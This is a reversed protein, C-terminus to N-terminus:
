CRGPRAAPAPARVLQEDQGIDTARETLLLTLRPLAQGAHQAMLDVVRERRDLRDRLAEHVQHAPVRHWGVPALVQALPHPHDAAAGFREAPQHGRIRPQRAPGSTVIWASPPCSSWSNILRTRLATSAVTSVPPWTSTSHAVRLPRTFM